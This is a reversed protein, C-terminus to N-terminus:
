QVLFRNSRTFVTGASLDGLYLRQPLQVHRPYGSRHGVPKRWRNNAKSGGGVELVKM